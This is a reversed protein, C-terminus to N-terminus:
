STLKKIKSILELPNLPKEILDIDDSGGLNGIVDQAHGSIFIYPVNQSIARIEDYAVKGSKNPMIVDSIVLDIEDKKTKFIDVAQCGDTATIVNYGSQVLIKSMVKCFNVDDEVLLITALHGSVLADSSAYRNFDVETWQDTMSEALPFQLSFVTGVGVKSQVEIIGDHQMIIGFVMSLGLGTGKGVDKTTFFPDFICRQTEDDMGHGSDSVTIIACRVKEATEPEAGRNHVMFGARATIHLTGGRPMADRANTALNIMVQEIQGADIYAMLPEDSLEITLEIDERILHKIFQGVKGLLVNLNETKIRMIQKRGYALMSHTIAGARNSAAMIENVYQIHESSMGSAMKLLIGYANIISLKNNLDHALGGALQGITEVKQSHVLQAILEKKETIDEKVAVFNSISGAKDYLPSVIVHEWLVTGDKRKDPLEGNWSHGSLITAWIDAYLKSTTHDSSLQYPMQGIAEDFTFGTNKTFSQNVFEIRGKSDTILISSPSQEIACSLKHMKNEYKKRHTIDVHAIVVRIKNDIHLSCAKCVYWQETEPSSCLYETYFDKQRGELVSRLNNTFALVDPDCETVSPLCAEFYNANVSCREKVGGNHAAFSEWGQNTQIITGQEDIVCIHAPLGDLTSMLDMTRHLQLEMNKKNTVDSVFGHWLVSGDSQRSPMAIGYHWHVDVGPLHVRFEYEWAHLTEASLRVSQILGQKDDPHITALLPSANHFVQDPTVGYLENIASSAYPFSFRGDPFLCCQYIMGPVQESIATLLNHSQELRKELNKQITVDTIVWIIGNSPNETDLTTGSLRATFVTGDRRKMQQDTVVTKHNQLLEYTNRGFEEFEVQSVFGMRTSADVLEELSYGSMQSCVSNVWKISRNQVYVIAAGVNELVFKQEEFCRVLEREVLESRTEHAHMRNRMFIISGIGVFWIGGHVLCFASLRLYILSKDGSVLTEFISNAYEVKCLLCAFLGSSGVVLLTWSLVLTSLSVGFVKSESGM